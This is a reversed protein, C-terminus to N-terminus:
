QISFTKTITKDDFSFLEKVEVDVPTTEDNLEYAVEVDIPLSGLNYILRKIAIAKM